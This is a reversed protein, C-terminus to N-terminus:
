VLYKLTQLFVAVQPQGSHTPWLEGEPGAKDKLPM